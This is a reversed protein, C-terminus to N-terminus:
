DGLPGFRVVQRDPPLRLWALSMQSPSLLLIDYKVLARRWLAGAPLPLEPRPKKASSTTSPTSAPSAARGARLALALKM